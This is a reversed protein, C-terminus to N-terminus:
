QVYGGYMKRWNAEALLTTKQATLVSRQASFAASELRTWEDFTTLGKLYKAKTIKAREDAAQQSSKAVSLATETNVFDYYAEELSYRLDNASQDFDKKAQDLRLGYIARDAFNTGSPFLPYSISLRASRSSSDAPPWSEGSKSYSASLSISPLFGSLSAQYALDASELDIKAQIYSPTQTLLEDFAVTTEAKAEPQGEVSEVPKNLLQALKLQALKLERQASELDYKAGAEDAKTSLLNGKDERGSNYRLEILRSNETRQQLIKELLVVQEQKLWLNLYAARLDYLVTAQTAQWTAKENELDVYASKISYISAAGDFINQSASLGYSYSQAYDTGSETLGASASINPLYSSFSRKYTWEAAELKKQASLLQNNNKQAISVAESWTLAHLPSAFCLLLLLGVAKRIM